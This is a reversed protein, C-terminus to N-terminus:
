RFTIALKVNCSIASKSFTIGITNVYCIIIFLICTNYRSSNHRYMSSSYLMHIFSNLKILWTRYHKSFKTTSSFRCILTIRWNEVRDFGQFKPKNFRWLPSQIYIHIVAVILLYNCNLFNIFYQFRNLNLSNEYKGLTSINLITTIQLTSM